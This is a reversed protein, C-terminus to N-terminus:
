ARFTNTTGSRLLGRLLGRPARTRRTLPDRPDRRSVDLRDADLALQKSTPTGPGFGIDYDVRLLTPVASQMSQLAAAFKYSHRPHSSTTTIARRSSCRRITRRRRSPEAAALVCAARSIASRDPSGFEPIWTPGITFRTFRTM